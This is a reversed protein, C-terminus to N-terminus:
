KYAAPVSTTRERRERVGITTVAEAASVGTASGNTISGTLGGDTMTGAFSATGNSSAM